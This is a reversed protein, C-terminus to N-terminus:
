LDDCLLNSSMGKVGERVPQSTFKQRIISLMNIMDFNLGYKNFPNFHTM